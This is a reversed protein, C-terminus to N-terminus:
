CHLLFGRLGHFQLWSSRGQGSLQLVLSSVAWVSIIKELSLEVSAQGIDLEELRHENWRCTMASLWICSDLIVFQFLPYRHALGNM